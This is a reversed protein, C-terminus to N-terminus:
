SLNNGNIIKEMHVSTGQSPKSEVVLKDTFLEMFSFGMGSREADPKTTFMPEMARNVDDIGMGEDIIDVYVRRDVKYLKMIVKGVNDRYAHIVSNTVAESVATKLDQLEELSPNLGLIYSSVIMRAFGENEPISDFSIEVVNEYDSM